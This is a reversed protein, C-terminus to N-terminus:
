NLILVKPLSIKYGDMSDIVKADKLDLWGYKTNTYVNSPLGALDYYDAISVYGYNVIIEKMSSLVSLADSETGFLIDELVFGSKNRINKNKHYYSYSVRSNNKPSHCEEGYLVTEIKDAVIDTLAKRIRKFHLMKYFAFVNGGIFGGIAGLGFITVNKGKM